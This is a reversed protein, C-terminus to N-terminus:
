EMKFWLDHLFLLPLVLNKSAILLHMLSSSSLIICQCKAFSLDSLVNEHRFTAYSLFIRLYSRFIRESLVKAAALICQKRLIERHNTTFIQGGTIVMALPSLISSLPLTSVKGQM